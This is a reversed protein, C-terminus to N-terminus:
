TKEIDRASRIATRLELWWRVLTLDNEENEPPVEGYRNGVYATTIATL